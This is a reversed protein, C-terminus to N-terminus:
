AASRERGAPQKVDRQEIAHQRTDQPSVDEFEADEVDEM